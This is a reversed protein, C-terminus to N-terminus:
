GLLAPHKQGAAVVVAGLGPPRLTGLATHRPPAPKCCGVDCGAVVRARGMEVKALVWTWRKGLTGEEEEEELSLSSGV